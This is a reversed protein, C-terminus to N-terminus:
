LTNYMNLNHSKCDMAEEQGTQYRALKQIGGFTVGVILVIHVYWDERQQLEKEVHTPQLYHRKTLLIFGDCEQGM